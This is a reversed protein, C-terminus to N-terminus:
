GRGWGQFFVRIIPESDFQGHEDFITISQSISIGGLVVGNGFEEGFGWGLFVCLVLYFWEGLFLIIIWLGEERVGSGCLISVGLIARRM